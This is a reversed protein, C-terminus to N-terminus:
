ERVIQNAILWKQTEAEPDFEPENDALDVKRDAKVFSHVLGFVSVQLDM